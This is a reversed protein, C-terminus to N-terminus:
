TPLHGARLSYGAGLRWGEVILHQLQDVLVEIADPDEGSLVKVAGIHAPYSERGWGSEMGPKFGGNEELNGGLIM